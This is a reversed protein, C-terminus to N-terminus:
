PKRRPPAGLRTGGDVVLTDGTVHRSARGGLFIAAAAIDDPTSVVQLPAALAAGARARSAIEPTAKDWWGSDIFGPAVLNVRIKPALARALSLTLTGLAAKSAAYPVSSGAGTLGAMSGVNVVAGPQPAAELLSRAARIMQFPGVVNLAYLGLFDEASVADLNNHPAFVTAGANNFLADLRGFPQAAAAVRRCDADQRVDGQVIVAEAGEAEVLRATEQAGEASRAYNVVVAKAGRAAAQVAIARGLGASAGTVLVVFGGFDTEAM